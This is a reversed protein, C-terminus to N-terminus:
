QTPKIKRSSNSFTLPIIQLFESTKMKLLGKAQSGHITLHSSKIGNYDNCADFEDDVGGEPIDCALNHCKETPHHFCHEYNAMMSNYLCNAQCINKDNKIKKIVKNTEKPTPHHPCCQNLPDVVRM